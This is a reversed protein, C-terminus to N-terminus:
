ADCLSYPVPRAKYIKPQSGRDVYLKATTARLAGLEYVFMEACQKCVKDISVLCFQLTKDGLYEVQHAM